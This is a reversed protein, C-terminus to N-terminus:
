SGSAIYKRAGVVGSLKDKVVHGSHTGNDNADNRGVEVVGRGNDDIMQASILMMPMERVVRDVHMCRDHEVGDNLANVLEDIMLTRM